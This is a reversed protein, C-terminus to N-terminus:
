PPIRIWIIIPRAAKYGLIIEIIFPVVIVPKFKFTFNVKIFARALSSPNSIGEERAWRFLLGPFKFKEFHITGRPATRSVVGLPSIGRKALNGV